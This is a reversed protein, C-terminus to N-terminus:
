SLSFQARLWAVDDDHGSFFCVRVFEHDAMKEQQINPQM